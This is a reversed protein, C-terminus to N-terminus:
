QYKRPGKLHRLYPAVPSQAFAEGRKVTPTISVRPLQHRLCLWNWVWADHWAELQWVQDTLYVQQWQECFRTVMEHERDWIVLGTEPYMESRGLYTCAVGEPPLWELWQERPIPATQLVDADLWVVYRSQSTRLYHIQAEVKHSFRVCTRAFERGEDARGQHRLRWQAWETHEHEHEWWCDYAFQWTSITRAAYSAWLEHNVCTIIHTAM